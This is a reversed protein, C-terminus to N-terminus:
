RPRIIAISATHGHLFNREGVPGLEGACFMGACPASGALAEQLTRIDRDPEGFLARGRGNCAFLLAGSAASDFAQPSLLMCLDDQAARADRVHLRIKERRGIVDAVALAGRDRDAGLLNRILYDGRGSAEGRAPRGVYLGQRLRSRESEPMDRLVQEVREVAPQGDLTLILNDEVHTVDLPPGIPECGQSVVVDARLAGHLAIAFGGERAMWDNLVLTNGGPKAAASALGGVVRVGPAWRNFLGLVRDLDLSFPDGVLLVLEAGRAGPARLDFEQVSEVPEAWSDQLLLFPMVEVGPLRAAVVSLAVGQEVEHERTVVGRASVAGFTTAPLARRLEETAQATRSIGPGSVFALVLDPEAGGLQRRLERAVEIAAGAPEDLRSAASAWCMRSTDIPNM